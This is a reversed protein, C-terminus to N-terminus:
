WFGYFQIKKEIDLYKDFFTNVKTFDIIINSPLDSLELTPEVYVVLKYKINCVLNKFYEIYTENTRRCENWTSRGIDKFASVFIISM